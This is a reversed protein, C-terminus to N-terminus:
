GPAVTTTAAPTGGACDAPPPLKIERGTYFNPWDPTNVNAANLAEITIDFKATVVYPADGEENTYTPNCRDGGSTPTSGDTEDEEDTSTGPATTTTATPDLFKANPPIRVTGGPAPYNSYDAEWGNYNRLEDLSVDFLQAIEVPYEDQHVTYSQEAASRGEADAVPVAPVTPAVTAPPKVEYSSPRINVTTVTASGPSDGCATLGWLAAATLAALGFRSVPTFM